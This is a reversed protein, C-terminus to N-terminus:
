PTVTAGVTSAILLLLTHLNGGPVPSFTVLSQGAVTWDPRVMIAAALFLGNFIALGLVIREWRWYRRGSLTFVVLLVGAGAAVPPGLGFFALGIRIVVFEAVLTVLNTVLLDGAAFWGWVPGFRQLVLEGYGRHTVAGVRMCMEQCCVAMAFTVVIFPLFFGVGYTAGTAAYSVMSPGDNEGLMAVIGPGALLWLLYWRRGGRRARHVRLRDRSRARDEPTLLPLAVAGGPQAGSAPPPSM